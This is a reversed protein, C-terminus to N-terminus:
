RSASQPLEVAAIHEALWNAFQLQTLKHETLELVAAVVEAQTAEIEFGNQFLFVYAALFSIRKNGDVFGHNQCLGAAYGAALDVLRPQEYAFLNKPKALASEIGALDRTGATGGHEELQEQHILLVAELELWFPPNV